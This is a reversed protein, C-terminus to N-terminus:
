AALSMTTCDLDDQSGQFVSVDDLEYIDSQTIHTHNKKGKKATVRPQGLCDKTAHLVVRPAKLVSRKEPGSLVEICRQERCHPATLAQASKPLAAANFRWQEGRGNGAPSRHWSWPFLQVM